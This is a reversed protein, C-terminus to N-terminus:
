VLAVRTNRVSQVGTKAKEFSAKAEDKDGHTEQKIRSASTRQGTLMLTRDLVPVCEMGDKPNKVIKLGLKDKVYKRREAASKFQIKKPNNAPDELFSKLDVLNSVQGDRQIWPLYPLLPPLNSGDVFVM